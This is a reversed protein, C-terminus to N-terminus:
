ESGQLLNYPSEGTSEEYAKRTEALKRQAERLKPIMLRAEAMHEAPTKDKHKKKYRIDDWAPLVKREQKAKNDLRFMIVMGILGFAIILINVIEHNSM